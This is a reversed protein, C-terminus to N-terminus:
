GRQMAAALRRVFPDDVLDDLPVPLPVSWNPHQDVTGPLNPRATLRLADELTAAVLLAPSRALAGHVRLVVEDLSASSRVGAVARLRDRLARLGDADPPLGARRQLDLDAGTWTGAVTPLDHTTVAALARTPYEAPPRTEFYALRYSLVGRAALARRVRADVTGLDEGVVFAGARAAEIAVIALLERWPYRVYAGSAPGEGVPLCWLRFLGMAHDIRLGGAHRLAARIAEIFPRHGSERLRAPAFPPMGWDQGAPNFVDPPAGINLENALLDQFAWADAGDRDVGIPLDHVLPITRGAVRLQEDLLWQVWEHFAVREAHDRRFRAVAAGAPRRLEEPWRRWSSGHREAIATYSSWEGLGRGIADAYDRPASRQGTGRWILELGRVKLELVADRDIRAGRNLARGAAELRALEGGLPGAAGPVDALRLYLPSRFRRSAPSYPSAPIPPVPATALLPNVLLMGAGLAASAEGLRALDALDGIGWSGRSRTAYLQASWGWRRETPIPCSRPAVLLLAEGADTGLRHYGTPLDRPLRDVWGLPTGDELTLEGPRPLRAGRRAVLVPDEAGGRGGM